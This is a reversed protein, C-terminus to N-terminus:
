KKTTLAKKDSVGKAKALKYIFKIVMARREKRTDYKDNLYMLHTINNAINLFSSNVTKTLYPVYGEKKLIKTNLDITNLDANLFPFANGLPKYEHEMSVLYEKGLPLGIAHMLEGVACYEGKKNSLEDKAKCGKRFLKATQEVTFVVNKKTKQTSTKKM